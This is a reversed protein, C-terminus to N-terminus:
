PSTIAKGYRNEMYYAMFEPMLEYCQEIALQAVLRTELQTDAKSRQDLWHFLAKVTGAIAFDQRRCDLLIDRAIEPSQGQQILEYYRLANTKCYELRKNREAEGFETRTGNRDYYFGVPRIYYAQTVDEANTSEGKIVKEAFQLIKNNEERYTQILTQSDRHTRIQMATYHPFGSFELIIFAGDLVAWHGRNGSLQHKIVAKGPNKPHSKQDVGGKTIHQFDWCAAEVNPSTGNRNVRCTMGTNARKLHLAQIREM